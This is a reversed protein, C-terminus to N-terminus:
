SRARRRERMGVSGQALEAVAVPKAVFHERQTELAAPASLPVRVVLQMEPTPPMVTRAREDLPEFLVADVACGRRAAPMSCTRM